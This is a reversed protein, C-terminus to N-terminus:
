ANLSKYKNNIDKNMQDGLFVVYQCIRDLLKKRTEKNAPNLNKTNQYFKRLDELDDTLTKLTDANNQLSVFTKRMHNSQLRAVQEKANGIRSIMEKSDSLTTPEIALVISECTRQLTDCMRGIEPDWYESTKTPYLLNQSVFKGDIFKGRKLQERTFIQEKIRKIGSIGNQASVRCRIKTYQDNWVFGNKSHFIYNCKEPGSLRGKLLTVDEKSMDIKQTIVDKGKREERLFDMELTIDTIDTCFFRNQVAVQIRNTNTWVLEESIKFRAGLFLFGLLIGLFGTLTGILPANELIFGWLYRWYSVSGYNPVDFYDHMAVIGLTVSGTLVIIGLVCGIFKLIIRGNHKTCNGM